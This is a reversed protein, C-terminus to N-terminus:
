VGRPFGEGLFWGGDGAPEIWHCHELEMVEPVQRPHQGNRFMEVALELTSELPLHGEGDGKAVMKNFLQRAEPSPNVKNVSEVRAM